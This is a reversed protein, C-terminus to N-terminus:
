SQRTKHKIINLAYDCKEESTIELGAFKDTFEAIWDDRYIYGYSSRIGKLMGKRRWLGVLRKNTHLMRAVEDTTLYKLESM